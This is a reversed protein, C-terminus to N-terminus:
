RKVLRFFKDTEFDSVTIRQYRFLPMPPNTRVLHSYKKDFYSAFTITEEDDCYDLSARSEDVDPVNTTCRNKCLYRELRADFKGATLKWDSLNFIDEM